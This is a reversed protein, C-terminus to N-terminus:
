RGTLLYFLRKWRPPKYPRFGFDFHPMLTILAFLDGAAASKIVLDLDIKGEKVLRALEDNRKVVEDYEKNKAQMYRIWKLEENDYEKTEKSVVDKFWQFAEKSEMITRMVKALAKSYQKFWEISAKDITGTELAEDIAKDLRQEYENEKAQSNGELLM